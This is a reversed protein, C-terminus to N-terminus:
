GFIPPSPGMHSLRNYPDRIGPTPANSPTPPNSQSPLLNNKPNEFHPASLHIPAKQMTLKFQHCYLMPHQQM